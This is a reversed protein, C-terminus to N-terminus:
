PAGRCCHFFVRDAPHIESYRSPVNCTKTGGTPLDLAIATGGPLIRFSLWDSEPAHTVLSIWRARVRVPSMPLFPDRPDIM